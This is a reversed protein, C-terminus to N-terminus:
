AIVRDFLLAGAAQANLLGFLNKPDQLAPILELPQLIGAEQARAYMYRLASYDELAFGVSDFITIQTPSLRGPSSKQLVQWLETVAFDAPMQQLEGEIRTQPEFEVFVNGKYLLSAELETKGPCDGGVANIHTGPAVMDARLIIANTNDATITTIIDAGRVAEATSSCCVVEIPYPALNQHLKHMAMGDIDYIRLTDIGLVGHFALAQFESQTGNGILAMCHSEPRMLQRAAMVSTAATRLATSLTLESLFIPMGNAMNALAGFAMVTPLGRHTNIPHGNVYKFAYDSADSIPMLEIVGDPSYNGIRVSKTFDQWRMFNHEIAQAMGQLCEIVGVRTVLKAAQNYGLFDTHIGFPTLNATHTM